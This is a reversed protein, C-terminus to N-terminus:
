EMQEIGSLDDDEDDASGCSDDDEEGLSIIIPEVHDSFGRVDRCKDEIGIVHEVAKAWNSPSVNEAATILLKRVSDIKFDTNMRAVEGKMQAWILEIPNFECHYPPLRLVVCGAKEAAVDVRFKVFQEKVPVVLELLQKKTMTADCPIGKSTLWALIDPKRSSMTPVTELRRSHYSANDMVVVSGQPLKTLVFDFWAEFHEGDMEEHYDGSKTGKFVSLCGDVFGDENGIHTVILRAGRGSPQKLGTTLGRLFADEPTKVTDDRWAKTVTHGANVWTEDTYFVKRHQQRYEAIQRLYRQRWILVDQREIMLSNRERKEFVFGIDSLLRRITWTRLNPLHESRRFEEAIKQATPPENRRFLDHVINRLACLTFSDYMATRRKRNESGPRKRSPTTLKGGTAKAKSKIDLIKRFSVGTYESTKRCTEKVAVHSHEERLKMYVNLVTQQVHRCLVIGSCNKKYLHKPTSPSKPPPSSAGSRLCSSSDPASSVTVFAAAPPVAYDHEALFDVEYSVDM